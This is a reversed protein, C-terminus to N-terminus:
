KLSAVLFGGAFALGILFITGVLLLTARSTSLVIGDVPPPPVSPAPPSVAPAPETEGLGALDVIEEQADAPMSAPRAVPRGYGPYQPRQPTAPSPTPYAPGSSGGVSTPLPTADASGVPNLLNDLDLVDVNPEPQEDPQEEPVTIAYSCHPCNIEMGAKRRAIGLLRNCYGCRFKIPM